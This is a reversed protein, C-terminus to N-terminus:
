WDIDESIQIWYAKGPQINELDNLWPFMSNKDYQYWHDLVSDYSLISVLSSDISATAFERTLTILSRYGVLNWGAYLNVPDVPISGNITLLCDSDVEIWYGVGSQVSTLNNLWPFLSNKDYQHWSDELNNYTLISLLNDWISALATELDSNEPVLPMSVFNWGAKLNPEGEALECVEDSHSLNVNVVSNGNTGRANLLTLTETGGLNVNSGSDSSFANNLDVIAYPFDVGGGVFASLPYNTGPITVILLSGTAPTSGDSLYCPQILVDNSFPKIDGNDDFTRSIGSQTTVFICPEATDPYITLDGSDKSTSATRFYYTTDPELGTVMVKMVGNDEAATRITQDESLVPHPTIGLGSVATTGNEDVYVNLDATCAEDGTSWVVSFSVPTVDTVFLDAVVPVGALVNLPFLLFLLLPAALYGGKKILFKWSHHRDM